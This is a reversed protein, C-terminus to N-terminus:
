STFWSYLFNKVPSLLKVFESINLFVLFLALLMISAIKGQTYSKDIYTKKSNKRLKGILLFVFSYSAIIRFILAAFTISFTSNQEVIPVEKLVDIVSGFWAQFNSWSSIDVIPVKGLLDQLFDPINMVSFLIVLYCLFEVILNIKAKKSLIGKDSSAIINAVLIIACLTPILNYTQSYIAFSAVFVLAYLILQGIVEDNSSSSTKRTITTKRYWKKTTYTGSGTNPPNTDIEKTSVKKRGFKILTYLFGGIGIINGLFGLIENITNFSLNM